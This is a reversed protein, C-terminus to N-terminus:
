PSTTGSGPLGFGVFRARQVSSVLSPILGMAFRSFPINLRIMSPWSYGGDPCQPSLGTNLNQRRSSYDIGVTAFVDKRGYRGHLILPLVPM